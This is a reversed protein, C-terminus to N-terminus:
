ECSPFAQRALPERRHPICEDVGVRGVLDQSRPDRFFFESRQEGESAGARRAAVDVASQEREVGPAGASVDVLQVGQRGRHFGPPRRDFGEDGGADGVGLGLSQVPEDLLDLAGGAAEPADRVLVTSYPEVAGPGM